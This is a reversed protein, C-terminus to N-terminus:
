KISIIYQKGDTFFPDGSFNEGLTPEIFQDKKFNEILKLNQLDEFLFERETDIDPEIKHTVGWKIGSDLSATGLYVRKRNETLYNTKWFRAHHRQSISNSQTAKEFGFNHTQKNWFSPTMPAQPYSQKLFGEKALKTISSVSVKEALFWGGKKFTKILQEDNDALIIFSIPEQKEGTLTETYKSQEHSFIESVNQIIIEKQLVPPQEIQPHYNVASVTYFLLSIFVLVISIIRIKAQPLFLVAGKKRLLLWESISISIILWLVGVLYGGWVDSVYHVGLYLRSFGILLILGIGAFFLNIKIRWRKANRIFIYMLFGYLAVAIAAHGSPFSFSHEAYVALAPRPRRLIVKGLGTFIESGIIALLLPTIYSRKRWLWLIGVTAFAFVSVVQWKGLLTIWLFFKTIKVSRFVSLLNAIRTDTSVIVDATIVNEVIGIFLSSIYIFALFLFTAPLGSFKNKNLRNKIFKFLLAHKKALKQVDPNNAIAKKISCWISVLFFLIEKGNKIILWKLVYFVFIFAAFVAIFIGGRTSWLIITEWAQGFFYGILLFSTAWAFGSFINWLLFKKRDMKFMGAVFPIIPRIPGVFRGSFISRGGYKSFFSKGGDLYKSKFIKSDDKFIKKAHSGLYYSLADGMIAGIAAFWIVDGLDFFGKASVFGALIVFITGPIAIGVFALSELFSILLVIWYGLLRFHEITPLLSILFDM